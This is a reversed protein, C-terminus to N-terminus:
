TGKKGERNQYGVHLFFFVECPKWPTGFYILFINIDLFPFFDFNNKDQTDWFNQSLIYVLNNSFFIMPTDAGLLQSFDYFKMPIPRICIKRPFPLFGYLPLPTSEVGPGKGRANKCFKQTAHGFKGGGGGWLILTLLDYLWIIQEM